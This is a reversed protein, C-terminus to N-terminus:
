KYLGAAAKLFNALQGKGILKLLVILDKVEDLNDQLLSHELIFGNEAFPKLLRAVYGSKFRVSGEGWALAKAIAKVPEDGRGERILSDIKNITDNISMAFIYLM